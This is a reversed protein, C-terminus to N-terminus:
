TITIRQTCVERTSFMCITKFNYGPISANWIIQALCQVCGHVVLFGHGTGLWVVVNPRKEPGAVAKGEKGDRSASITAPGVVDWFPLGVSIVGRIVTWLGRM